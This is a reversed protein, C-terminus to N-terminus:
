NSCSCSLLLVPLFSNHCTHGTRRSLGTFCHQLIWLVKSKSNRFIVWFGQSISVERNHSNLPLQFSRQSQKRCDFSLKESHKPFINHQVERWTPFFSIKKKVFAIFLMQWLVVFIFVKLLSLACLIRVFNAFMDLMISSSWVTCVDPCNIYRFLVLFIINVMEYRDWVMHHILSFLCVKPLTSWFNSKESFNRQYLFTFVIPQAQYILYAHPAFWKVNGLTWKELM